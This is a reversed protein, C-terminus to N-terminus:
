KIRVMAQFYLMGPAVALGGICTYGEALRVTVIRELADLDAHRIVIYPQTPANM